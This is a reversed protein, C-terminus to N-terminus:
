FKLLYSKPRGHTRRHLRGASGAGRGNLEHATASMSCENSPRSATLLPAPQRSSERGPSRVNRGVPQIPTPPVEQVGHLVVSTTSEHTLGHAEMTWSTLLGPPARWRHRCAHQCGYSISKHTDHEPAQTVAQQWPEASGYMQSQCTKKSEAPTTHYRPTASAALLRRRRSSQLATRGCIWM